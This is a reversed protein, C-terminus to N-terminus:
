KRKKSWYSLRGGIQHIFDFKGYAFLFLKYKPKLYTYCDTDYYKQMVGEILPLIHEKEQSTGNGYLATLCSLCAELVMAKCKLTYPTNQTIAFNYLEITSLVYDWRKTASFSTQTISNPNYTYRYFNINYYGMRKARAMYKFLTATDEFLRGEPYLIDAVIEKRYIRGWVGANDEKLCKNIIEKEELITLSFDEKHQVPSDLRDIHVRDGSTAIIDLNNEELTKIVKDITNPVIADDSDIFLVYDGTMNKLGTNRAGSLGKNAQHIVTIHPYKKAYQDCVEGSRDKSGDNILIIEINPYTQELLSDICRPLLTEVNYVPVIISLKKM